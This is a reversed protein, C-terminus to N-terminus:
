ISKCKFRIYLSLFVLPFATIRLMFFIFFINSGSMLFTSLLTNEDNQQFGNAFRVMFLRSIFFLQVGMENMESSGAAIRAIRGRDQRSGAAIMTICAEKRYIAMTKKM